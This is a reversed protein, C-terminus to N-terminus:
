VSGYRGAGLLIEIIHWISPSRITLASQQSYFYISNAQMAASYKYARILKRVTSYAWQTRGVSLSLVSWKAFPYLLSHSLSM